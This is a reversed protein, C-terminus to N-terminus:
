SKKNIDIILDDILDPIKLYNATPMNAGVIRVAYNRFFGADDRIGNLLIAHL